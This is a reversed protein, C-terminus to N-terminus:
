QDEKCFGGLNDCATWLKECLYRRQMRVTQTVFARFFWDLGIPPTPVRSIVPRATKEGSEDWILLTNDSVYTTHNQSYSEVKQIELIKAMLLRDTIGNHKIFGSGRMVNTIKKM